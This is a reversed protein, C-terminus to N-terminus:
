AVRPAAPLELVFRTRPASEDLRLRVHQATTFAHAIALGLGFGNSGPSKNFGAFLRERVAAPLGPGDDAVSAVGWSAGSTVQVVVNRAGHRLANEVLNALIRGTLLPDGCVATAAVDLQVVSRADRPCGREAAVTAVQALDFEVSAARLHGAEARSLTLLADVLSSMRTVEGEVAALAAKYEEAGRERRLTVQVEGLMATLPTRLEHAASASFAKERAVSLRQALLLDNMVGALEDWEDGIGRVPLKLELSGNRAAKARVAAERMPALARGALWFGVAAAGAVAFPVAAAMAEGLKLAIELNDRDEAAQEAASFNRERAEAREHLYFSAGTSAVFVILSGLVSLAISLAVRARLTRARM